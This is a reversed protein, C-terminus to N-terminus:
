GSARSLFESYLTRLVHDSTNIDWGLSVLNAVGGNRNVYDGILENTNPWQQSATYGTGTFLVDGFVCYDDATGDILWFLSGFENSGFPFLKFKSPDVGWMDTLSTITAQINVDMRALPEFSILANGGSRTGLSFVGCELSADLFTRPLKFGVLRELSRVRESEFPFRKGVIPINMFTM